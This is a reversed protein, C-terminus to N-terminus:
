PLDTSSQTAAYGSPQLLFCGNGSMDSPTQSLVLVEYMLTASYMPPSLKSTYSIRSSHTRSTDPLRGVLRSADRSGRSIVQVVDRSAKKLGQLSDWPLSSEAAVWSSCETSFPQLTIGFLQSPGIHRQNRM